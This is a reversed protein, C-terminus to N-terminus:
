RPVEIRQRVEVANIDITASPNNQIRRRRTARDVDLRAFAENMKSNVADTAEQSVLKELEQDLAKGSAGRAKLLAEAGKWRRSLRVTEDEYKALADRAENLEALQDDFDQQLLGLERALEDADAGQNHDRLSDVETSVNRIEAGFATVASAKEDLRTHRALAVNQRTEIPNARAEAKIAKVKWNAFKMALYPTFNILALGLVLAIVLGVLGKVALFIVPSIAVAALLGLGWKVATAIRERRLDDNM